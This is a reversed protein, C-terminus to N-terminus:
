RLLAEAAIRGSRVAGELTAPYDAYTYDGALVIGPLQGGISLASLRPRDPTCAITARKEHILSLQEPAPLGMEHVVQRVLADALREDGLERAKRSDSIVLAAIRWHAHVGRDFFWQAHREATGSPNLALLAPPGEGAGLRHEPWGLYATTIPLYEFRNLEEILAPAALGDLIRATAYPPTALVIEDCEVTLPPGPQRSGGVIRYRASRRAAAELPPAVEIRRVDCRLSIRAGEHRLWTMAPDVFLDSLNRRPLVFDSSAPQAGFSDRLVRLFTAACATDAPTNLASIVLPQWIREVLEAPQRTRDYWDAVTVVGPPPRWGALRSQTLVRIMAWRSALRLGQATALAILLSWPELLAGAMSVGPSGPSDDAFMPRELLLGTSSAMQMPRREIRAPDDAGVQRLLDLVERYAGLLLHQGNDLEIPNPGHVPHKWNLLIRRARGGAQPAADILRVRRGARTLRVAASIGAWGAGIVAIDPEATM